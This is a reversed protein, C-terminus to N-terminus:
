VVRESDKYYLSRRMKLSVKSFLHALLSKRVNQILAQSSKQRWMDLTSLSVFAQLSPVKILLVTRWKWTDPGFLYNELKAWLNSKLAVCEQGYKLGKYFSHALSQTDVKGALSIYYGRSAVFYELEEAEKVFASLSRSIQLLWPDYLDGLNNLRLLFVSFPWGWKMPWKTVLQM